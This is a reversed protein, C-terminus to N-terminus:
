HAPRPGTAAHYVALTQAAIRSWEYQRAVRERVASLESPTPQERCLGRMRAALMSVDGLRFYEQPRLDLELHAPIDSALVRLGYSLAELLAIPLGEHSSPLVFLGAHSYLERLAQGSQFGTMVVEAANDAAAVISACCRESHNTAGVLVLKWGNMQARHFARLLDLHRKEAVLRSVMLVYRGRQLNFHHLVTTGDTIEPLTVGNPIVEPAIGHQRQVARAATVSVAIRGRAMRMGVREGLRLVQRAIRGWKQREYDAGHHTVVVCLGLLRALPTWIAPGIAHIHLIDPRSVAAYLVGFLTHLVAELGRLRPAWIRRVRVGLWTGGPCAPVYPTRMIVEVDCGLEVLRRSLNAAHAEIGGQVDPFGRLGLMMIRLPRAIAGSHRPAAAEAAPATTM